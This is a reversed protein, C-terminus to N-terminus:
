IDNIFLIVMIKFNDISSIKYINLIPRAMGFTREAKNEYFLRFEFCLVM